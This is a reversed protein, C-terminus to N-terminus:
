QVDAMRKETIELGDEDIYTFNEQDIAIVTDTSEEGIPLLEPASTATVDTILKDGVVRWKGSVAFDLRVKPGTVSGALRLTRDARYVSIGTGIFGDGFDIRAQWRGPLLREITEADPQGSAAHSLVLLLCSCISHIFYRM